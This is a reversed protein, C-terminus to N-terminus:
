RTRLPFREVTRWGRWRYDVALCLERVVTRVPLLGTLQEATVPTSSTIITLHPVVADFEDAYPPCEPWAAALLATLHVFPKPDDPALYSVTPFHRVASFTADFASTEAALEALRTRAGADLRNSPLFPWLLTVHPPQDRRLPGRRPRSVRDLVPGAEPIAIFVATTGSV